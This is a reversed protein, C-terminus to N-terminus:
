PFPTVVKEDDNSRLLPVFNWFFLEVFFFYIIIIFESSKADKTETQRWLNRCLGSFYFLSFLDFGTM